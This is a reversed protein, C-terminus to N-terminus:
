ITIHHKNLYDMNKVYLLFKLKQIITFLKQIIMYINKHVKIARDIFESTKLKKNNISCKPCNAGSLHSAPTQLFDGHIDCGIIIKTKSNIYDVKSYDYLNNHINNFKDIVLNINLKTKRKRNEIACKKCGSGKLHNNIYQEFMGHDKCIIKLLISAKIYETKSYDYTNGHIKIASKIFKLTKNNM